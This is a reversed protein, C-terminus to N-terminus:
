VAATSIETCHCSSTVALSPASEQSACVSAWGWLDRFAGRNGFGEPFTVRTAKGLWSPLLSPQPHRKLFWREINLFKATNKTRKHMSHSPSQPKILSLTSFLFLLVATLSKHKLLSMLMGTIRSIIEMAASM